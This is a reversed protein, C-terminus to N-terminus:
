CTTSTTRWGVPSGVLARSRIPGSCGRRSTRKPRSTECPASCRCRAAVISPRNVSLLSSLLRHRSSFPRRAAIAGAMELRVRERDEVHVLRDYADPALVEGVPIGLLEYLGDSWTINNGHEDLEWTGIGSAREGARLRAESSVIRAEAVDRALAIALHRASREILTACWQNVIEGERVWVRVAFKAQAVRGHTEAHASTAPVSGREILVDSGSANTMELQVATTRIQWVVLDVVADAVEAIPAGRALRGLVENTRQQETSDRLVVMFGRIEDNDLENNAAYEFNRWRGDPLLLRVPNTAHQAVASGFLAPDHVEAAALAVLEGLDDPHVFEAAPRGVLESEDRSLMECMSPSVWEIKLTPDVLVVGYALSRALGLAVRLYPDDGHEGTTAKIVAAM